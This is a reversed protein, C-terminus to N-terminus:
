CRARLMMWLLVHLSVNPTAVCCACDRLLWILACILLCSRTGLSGLMVCVLVRLVVCQSVCLCVGCADLMRRAIDRVVVVVVVCVVVDCLVCRAVPWMDVSVDDRVDM